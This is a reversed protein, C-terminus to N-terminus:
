LERKTKRWTVLARM